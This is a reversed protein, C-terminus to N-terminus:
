QRDEALTVAAIEPAAALRQQPVVRVLLLRAVVTEVDRELALQAALDHKGSSVEHIDAVLLVGLRQVHDIWLQLRLILVLQVLLHRVREIM